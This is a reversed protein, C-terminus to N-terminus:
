HNHGSIFFLVILGALLVLMQMGRVWSYKSEKLEAVLDVLAIYLLGGAGIAVAYPLISEISQFAFFAVVGGLVATLASALNLFLAQTKKFGSHVLVAFDGLEQPIEHLAVAITTAIGLQYDVMFASAILVGDLFNHLGDGLLISYGVVKKKNNECGECDHRRSHHWHLIEEFFLFLLIGAVIYIPAKDGIMEFSEPILDFFSAGLLAGAAFAVLWPLWKNLARESFVFYVVGLLSILSVAVVSILIYLLMPEM